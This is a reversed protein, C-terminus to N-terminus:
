FADFGSGSACLRFAHGNQGSASPVVELQHESPNSADFYNKWALKSHLLAPVSWIRVMGLECVGTPITRFSCELVHQIAGSFEHM